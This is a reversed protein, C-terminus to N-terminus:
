RSAPNSQEVLPLNDLNSFQQEFYDNYQQINAYDTQNQGNQTMELRILIQSRFEQGIQSSNTYKNGIKFHLEMMSLTVFTQKVQEYSPHTELLPQNLLQSFEHKKMNAFLAEVKAKNEQIINRKPVNSGKKGDKSM